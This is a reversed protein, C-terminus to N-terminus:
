LDRPAKSCELNLAALINNTFLFITNEITIVQCTTYLQNVFWSLFKFRTNYSDHILNFWDSISM